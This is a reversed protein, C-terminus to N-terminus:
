NFDELKIGKCSDKDIKLIFENITEYSLLSARLKFM